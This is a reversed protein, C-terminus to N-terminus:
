FCKLSFLASVEFRVLSNQKVVIAITTGAETAVTRTFLEFVLDMNHSARETGFHVRICDRGQVAAKTLTFSFTLDRYLICVCARVDGYVFVYMYV